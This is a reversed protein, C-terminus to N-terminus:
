CAVLLIAVHMVFSSNESVSKRRNWKMQLKCCCQYEAQLLFCCIQPYLPPISGPLTPSLTHHSSPYWHHLRQRCVAQDWGLIYSTLSFIRKGNTQGLWVGGSLLESSVSSFSIAKWSPREVPVTWSSDLRMGLDIFLRPALSLVTLYSNCDMVQQRDWNVITALSQKVSSAKHM